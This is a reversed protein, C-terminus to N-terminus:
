NACVNICCVKVPQVDIARQVELSAHEKLCQLGERPLTESGDGGHKDRSTEPVGVSLCLGDVHPACLHLEHFEECTARRQGNIVVCPQRM